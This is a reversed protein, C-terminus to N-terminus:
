SVYVCVYVGHRKPCLVLGSVCMCVYMYVCVCWSESPMVSAGLCVYVCVYVCMCVYMYVCVCWAESPMVSAGLCVYVCVYVCM